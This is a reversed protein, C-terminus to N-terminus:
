VTNLFNCNMTFSNLIFYLISQLSVIPVKSSLLSMIPVNSSLLSVIPVKSSLLSVIPVKSSLVAKFLHKRRSCSLCSSVVRLPSTKAIIAIMREGLVTVVRASLARTVMVGSRTWGSRVKVKAMNLVALISWETVVIMLSTKVTKQRLIHYMSM